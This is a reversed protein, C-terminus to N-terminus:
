KHNEYNIENKNRPVDATFISSNKEKADESMNRLSGIRKYRIKFYSLSLNYNYFTNTQKDLIGEDDTQSNHGISQSPLNKKRIQLPFFSFM